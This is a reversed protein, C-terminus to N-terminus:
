TGNNLEASKAPRSTQHAELKQLGDMISTIHARYEAVLRANGAKKEELLRGLEQPDATGYQTKAQAELEALQRGINDLNQETRVKDERLREYQQKLQALERELGNGGQNMSNGNAGNGMVM